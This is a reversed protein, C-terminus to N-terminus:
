AGKGVFPQALQDNSAGEWRPRELIRRTKLPDSNLLGKSEGTQLLADAGNGALRSTFEVLRWLSRLGITIVWDRQVYLGYRAEEFNGRGWFRCRRRSVKPLKCLCLM